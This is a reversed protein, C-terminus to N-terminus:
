DTAKVGAVSILQAFKESEDRVFRGLEDPTSGRTELGQALLKERVDEQQLARNIEANLTSVVAAPTGAPVFYAFWNTAVFDAAGAESMTPVEPAAPSRTASAVGLARLKGSRVHPMSPPMSSFTM